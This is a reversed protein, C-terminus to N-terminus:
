CILDIKSIGLSWLFDIIPTGILAGFPLVVLDFALPLNFVFTLVM